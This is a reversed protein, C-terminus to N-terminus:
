SSPGDREATAVYLSGGFASPRTATIVPPSLGASAALAPLRAAPIPNPVWRSANTQDYEVIVVRGGSRLQSVLRALVVEAERVFHLANALLIGDLTAGVLGPLDFPRTFDAVVPIVPASSTRAWREIASVAASDRDVAYIRSKPGLLEVLARTFTGEGSGLDAWTEGRRPIAGRILDAADRADM